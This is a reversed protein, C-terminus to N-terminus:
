WFNSFWNGSPQSFFTSFQPGSSFVKLKGGIKVKWTPSQFMLCHSLLHGFVTISIEFTNNNIFLTLYWNCHIIVTEIKTSLFVFNSDMMEIWFRNVFFRFHKVYTQAIEKGQERTRSTALVWVHRSDFKFVKLEGQFSETPRERTLLYWLKTATTTKEKDQVNEPFLISQKTKINQSFPHYNLYAM